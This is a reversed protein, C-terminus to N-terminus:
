GSYMKKSGTTMDLLLNNADILYGDAYRTVNAHKKIVM